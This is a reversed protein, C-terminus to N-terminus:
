NKKHLLTKTIFIVFRITDLFPNIKSTENRYITKIPVSYVPYDFRSAQILVESEIQYDNSTLQVKELIERGIYRYGCQSDPIQQQCIKSIVSSMGRNVWVRLWPMGQHNDMRTGTIVSSPHEKGKEIFQNIDGVDHQGDGDLTIIGDYRCKIAYDFGDRLSIGKGKKKDHAIVHAEQHAAIDGTGDNSGDDIVVVDLKKEKLQKLLGGLTQSENHAPIIVCLRM